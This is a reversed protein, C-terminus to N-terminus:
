NLHITEGHKLILFRNKVIGYNRLNSKIENAPEDVAEQSLIFTGWHMAVAKKAELDVFTKLAEDPNLHSYKMIYRPKYAGIPIAVLDPKGIKKKIDIFDKTYGTDGLHLFKFNNSEIFYRIARNEAESFPGDGAYTDSNVNNSTGSTNWVENGDEDIFSYNRNNDVGHGDRKNKRWMGGGNPEIEENFVYGDPNVCPIFFLESENIISKIVDNTDYNVQNYFDNVVDKHQPSLENFATTDVVNQKLLQNVRMM